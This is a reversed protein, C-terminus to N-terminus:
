DLLQDHVVNLAGTANDGDIVCSINIESSREHIQTNDPQNSICYVYKLQLSQLRQLRETM